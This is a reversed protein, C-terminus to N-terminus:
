GRAWRRPYWNQFWATFVGMAAPIAANILGTYASLDTGMLFYTWIPTLLYLVGWVLTLIRNTRIFLPNDFARGGGYANASYYATLPTESFASAFWMLGFLGYSLPVVIRAGVDSAAALSLGAVAPVSIREYLTPKFILWLLPLATAAAIGAAGGVKGNIALAIWITMWPALLVAMNTKLKKSGGKRPRAAANGFLEDWRLMVDFDGLVKYKHGFLADQGSIEGKAVSRWLSYPTEIRTSYPTFNSSVVNSGQKTLVIQYTKGIDTYFFELVREKGDPVYLAAMRATFNLSDDTGNKVDGPVGWSADAMKEYIERPYLPASLAERTKPSVGGSVFESGARLVADIYADTVNRLEPISFLGGQGCFIKAYKGAGLFHDFMATIGDYNGDATWFGCTSIVAHRQRTLDYRPPHGGSEAEPSMFPLNLPLQRDILTKLGGPVSFYYLPFSWIIVDASIIKELIGGMGDNIACKGPTETWCVFCGRCPEIGSKATDIIEADSWGAGKLFARTLQITNGNAGKPSGNIVLVNM